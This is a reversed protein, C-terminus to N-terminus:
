KKSVVVFKIQNSDLILKLRALEDDTEVPGLRVIFWEGGKEPVVLSEVKPSLDLFKLETQYNDAEAATKFAALQVYIKSSPIDTKLIDKEQIVREGEALIEFYTFRDATVKEKILTEEKKQTIDAIKREIKTEGNKLYQQVLPVFALAIFLILAM